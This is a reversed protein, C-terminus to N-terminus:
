LIVESDINDEVHAYFSAILKRHLNEYAATGILDERRRPHPLGVNLITRIKGPEM